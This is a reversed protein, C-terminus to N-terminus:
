NKVEEKREEVWEVGQLDDLRHARHVLVLHGVPLVEGEAQRWLDRVVLVEREFVVATLLSQRAWVSM